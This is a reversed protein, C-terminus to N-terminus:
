LAPKGASARTAQELLELIHVYTRGTARSMGLECTRNASAYAEYERANVETAERETASATLEPHLMGRDGAFACCGWDVPEYVDESIAKAIGVLHGSVGLTTTSCTRHLAVSALPSNVSLNPLLTTNTFEVSDVFRLSAYEPGAARAREVMTELGETCSAADCVIPLRGGNSALLLSPLVRDSMTMYGVTHGKSKWPTGCCMDAVGEPEVITVGARHALLRFAESSGVGDGGPGFMTGICAAFFVAQPDPVRLGPNRARGGRPLDDSYRPVQDAGLAARGLDTVKAVLPHPLRDAASLAAGGMRTVPGWYHAALGWAAGAFRNATEARLRRVLDGTNIDVPCAVACMGDVACTQVGDYDYDGALDALLESDGRDEAARMERRLVIRQRPTLTLNKSPCTPECYGCEVCRDVEPEVTGSSKLNQLYSSPDDSLLVGPNLIGQPDFLRKIRWMVEYLEDGFQQRVFPAMIRGTGHEAKLTGRQELILDVLDATFREYRAVCDPDDFREGIMFHINGDKAHGFIVTDTYGHAAFLVNLRECTELLREVPVAVDELLATTGSPRAGAVATYLGKRVRWLSARAAADTVFEFPSALELSPLLEGFTATKRNLDSDDAAHHEILLAAQDRIRIASIEAPVDSLSQAVRLSTADMLEITALGAAVLHPLAATASRLDRFVLLGTAISPSVPVTEFTAESVFGLTGESGILLHTLIDIPREFDLLSNLGYGMTNKMSYQRKIEAVLDPRRLISDRLERLGAHLGPERQCLTDDAGPRGTDITTGDALTVVLSRLTRYTNQEIGCAMGSSNNAIVGGVTCAIESAPDPGLRRRFRALRANVQRITLGPEVTVSTGDTSVSMRQFKQRTDLLVSDSVGQGSLSTGGSRLTIPIQQNSCARFVESVEEASAPQVVASPILLYHSADHARSFRDIARDLVSIGAPLAAEPLVSAIRSPM